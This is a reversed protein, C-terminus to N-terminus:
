RVVTMKQTRVQDGDTLRLFYTGAALNETRLVIEHRGSGAVGRTRVKRGLVDYLELRVNAAESPIGVRATVQSTAPNPSPSQLEMEDLSGRTLTQTGVVESTGDIDVQRLRYQLPSADYPLAADTFRYSQVQTTTGVGDVFGLKTWGHADAAKREVSFGANQTESVTDWQLITQKGELQATFSALEVPLPNGSYFYVAGSLDQTDSPGDEGDSGVLLREPSLAVSQGLFDGAEGNSARFSTAEQWNGTSTRNYLYAAGTDENDGRSGVVAQDGSISVSWGFEDNSEGDSPYVRERQEWSGDIKEFIHAAGMGFRNNDPGDDEQAGVIATSGEIDVDWGFEDREDPINGRLLATETWNGDASREFIYAAGTKTRSNSSGDEAIAGVIFADQTLAVSYGFQDKDGANSAHLIDTENWRGDADREFVYVAGSRDMMNNPGDERTAGVIARDGLISVSRGFSDDSEANSARLVAVETWGNPTNEFIYAAGMGPAGDSPGDELNTGIIAYNGSISVSRGFADDPGANSALLQIAEAWSGDKRQELIYAAGADTAGPIDQGRAGIIANDGSISASGGFRDGASEDTARLISTEEEPQALLPGISIGLILLASLTLRFYSIQM